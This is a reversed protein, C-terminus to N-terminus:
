LELENAVSDLGDEGPGRQGFEVKGGEHPGSSAGRGYLPVLSFQPPVKTTAHVM